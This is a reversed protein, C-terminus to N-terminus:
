FRANASAVVVREDRVGDLLAVERPDVPGAAGAASKAM